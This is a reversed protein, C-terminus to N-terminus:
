MTYMNSPKQKNGSGTDKSRRSFCKSIVKVLSLPALRLMYFFSQHPLIWINPWIRGLIVLSFRAWRHCHLGQDPSTNPFLPPPPPPPNPWHFSIWFLTEGPHFSLWNLLKGNPCATAVVLQLFTSVSGRFFSREQKLDSRTVPRYFIVSVERRGGMWLQEEM